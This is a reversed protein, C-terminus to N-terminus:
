IKLKAIRRRTVSSNAEKMMQRFNRTRKCYKCIGHDCSNIMWHHICKDLRLLTLSGVKDDFVFKGTNSTRDKIFKSAGPTDSNFVIISAKLSLHREWSILMENIDEYDRLINICILGINDKWRRATEESDSFSVVISNLLENEGKNDNGNEITINDATEMRTGIEFRSCMNYLKCKNGENAGKALWITSNGTYGGIEIIVENKPIRAAIKSLFHGENDSINLKDIKKEQKEKELGM